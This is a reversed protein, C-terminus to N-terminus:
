ADIPSPMTPTGGKRMWNDYVQDYLEKGYNQWDEATVPKAGKIMRPKPKSQNKSNLPKRGLKTGNLKAMFQRRETRNLKGYIKVQNHNYLIKARGKGSIKNEKKTSLVGHAVLKQLQPYRVSYLDMCEKSTIWHRRTM